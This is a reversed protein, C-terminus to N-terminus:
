RARGLYDRVKDPSNGVRRIAEQLRDKTVGLTQTWYRLEHDQEISIRSRDPEGRKKTDDSM